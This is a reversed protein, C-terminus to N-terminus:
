GAPRHPVADSPSRGAGDREDNRAADHLVVLAVAVAVVVLAGVVLQAGGFPGIVGHRAPRHTFAPRPPQDSAARTRTTEPDDRDADGVPAASLQGPADLPGLQVDDARSRVDGLETPEGDAEIPERNPQGEAGTTSTVESM